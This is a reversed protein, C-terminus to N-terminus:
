HQKLGGNLYFLVSLKFGDAKRVWELRPGSPSPRYGAEPAPDYRFRLRRRLAANGKKIPIGRGAGAGAGAAASMTTANRAAEHPPEVGEARWEGAAVVDGDAAAVGESDGEVDGDELGAGEEGGGLGGGTATEEGYPTSTLGGLPPEYVTLRIAGFPWTAALAWALEGTEGVQAFAAAPTTGGGTPM